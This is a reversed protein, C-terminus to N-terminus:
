ANDAKIMTAAKNAIGYLSSSLHASLQVPLVSADIARVNQVGYVRLREDVVGGLEEKMSSLTAIPHWVSTFEQLVWQEWEKYSAGQAVAAFGPTLEESVLDSLPATNYVERSQMVAETQLRLDLPHRFYSPNVSPLDWSSNSSIHISGRAMVILNWADIGVEGTSTTLTFFIEAAAESANFLNNVQKQLIALTGNASAVHGAKELEAAYAPLSGMTEAYVAASDNRLLQHVNPFAIASSPGSGEFDTSLPKYYLSNKTQEQLNRGVAPFDKVVPVGAASLVAKDGVGSLELIQPSQMSGSALLVEKSAFATMVPADASAQFEVGSAVLPTATEDAWIIRVARHGTLVVLNSRTEPEGAIYATYSTSRNQSIDAQLMNPITTAGNVIGSAVDKLIELGSWVSTSANLAEQQLYGFLGQAFSVNLPGNEGHYQAEYQAGKAVLAEDPPNFHEASLMHKNLEDFGWSEDGIIYPLLDYQTKPGKTWSAGNIADSGSLTKGAAMPLTTGNRWSIPTSTINYDLPTNFAESYTRVDYVLPNDHDNQGGEIVLVSVNPDESLRGAVTLGTLGGGAIIYDFTQNAVNESSTVVGHPVSRRSPYALTVSSLALSSITFTSKM